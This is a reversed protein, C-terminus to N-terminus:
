PGSSSTFNFLAPYAACSAGLVRILSPTGSKGVSPRVSPGVPRPVPPGVSPCVRKYLHRPADLFFLFPFFFVLFFHFFFSPFFLFIFFFFFLPIFFRLLICLNALFNDFPLALLHILPPSHVLMLEIVNLWRILLRALQHELM